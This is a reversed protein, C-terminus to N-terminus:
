PGESSVPMGCSSISHWSRFTRWGTPSPAAGPHPDREVPLLSGPPVARGEDEQELSRNTAAIVRADTPIEDAGGVRRFVREQVVRLLKVQLDLPTESIEDLFITGGAAAEFYGVRRGDAGTFAGREHGFLESELLTLPIVGCNIGVFPRDARPSGDHLARALLEKGTGSEGEILVTSRLPAIRATLALIDAMAKSRGVIGQAQGMSAVRERLLRHEILLKRHANTRVIALNLVDPELPKLLYDEAGLKMAKVASDVTVHATM